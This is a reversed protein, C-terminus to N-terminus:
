QLAESDPEAGAKAAAGLRAARRNPTVALATQAQWQWRCLPVRGTAQPLAGPAGAPGHSGTGTHGLGSASAELRLSLAIPLSAVPPPTVAPLTVPEAVVSFPLTALQRPRLSESEDWLSHM